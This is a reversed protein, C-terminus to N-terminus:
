RNYTRVRMPPSGAALAMFQLAMPDLRPGVAQEFQTMLRNARKEDDSEQVGQQRALAAAWWLVAQGDRASLPDELDDNLDDLALPVLPGRAVACRVTMDETPLPFLRISLPRSLSVLYGIPKFATEDQWATPRGAWDADLDEERIRPLALGAVSLRDIWLVSADLVARGDESGAILTTVASTSDKIPQRLCLEDRAANFADILDQQSWRCVDSDYELSAPQDGPFDGLFGRLRLIWDAGTMAM